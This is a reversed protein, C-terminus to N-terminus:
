IHDKIDKLNNPFYLHGNIFKYHNILVLYYLWIVKMNRLSYCPFVSNKFVLFIFFYCFDMKLLNLSSKYCSFQKRNNQKLFLCDWKEPQTLINSCIRWSIELKNIFITHVTWLSNNKLVLSVPSMYRLCLSKFFCKLSMHFYFFDDSYASM